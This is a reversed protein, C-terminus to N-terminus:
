SMLSGFRSYIRFPHYLNFPDLYFISGLRTIVVFPILLCCSFLSVEKFKGWLEGMEKERVAAIRPELERLKRDVIARDMPRVASGPFSALLKYDEEAGSLDNWGGIESRAAARRMLAKVRIPILTPEDALGPPKMDGPPGGDPRRTTSSSLDEQDPTSTTTIKPRGCEIGATPGTEPVPPVPTNKIEADSTGHTSNKDTEAVALEGIREDLCRM